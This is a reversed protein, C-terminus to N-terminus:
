ELGTGHSAGVGKVSRFRVPLPRFFRAAVGAIGGAMIFYLPLVPVAYRLVNLGMSTLVALYAVFSVILIVHKRKDRFFALSLATGAAFLIFYWFVHNNGIFMGNMRTFVRGLTVWPHAAMYKLAEGRLARNRVSYAPGDEPLSYYIPGVQSALRTSSFEGCDSKENNAAYLVAGSYNELLVPQGKVATNHIYNASLLVAPIAVCVALVPLRIKKGALLVVAYVVAAALAFMLHPRILTGFSAVAILLVLNRGRRRERGRDLLHIMLLVLVLIACIVSPETMTYRPGYEIVLQCTSFMASAAVAAARRGYLEMCISYILVASAGFAAYQLVSAWAASGFLAAAAAIIVPLGPPVIIGYPRLTNVLGRGGALNEAINIYLDGDPSSSVLAGFRLYTIATCIAISALFVIALEIPRHSKNKM